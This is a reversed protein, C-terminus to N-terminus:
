IRQGRDSRCKGVEVYKCIFVKDSKHCANYEIVMFLM